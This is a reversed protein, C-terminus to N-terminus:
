IFMGNEIVFFYIVRIKELDAAIPIKGLSENILEFGGHYSRAVSTRSYYTNIIIWTHQWNINLSIFSDVFQTKSKFM